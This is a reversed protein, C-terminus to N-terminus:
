IVRFSVRVSVRFRSECKFTSCRFCAASKVFLYFKEHLIHATYISLYYLEDYM